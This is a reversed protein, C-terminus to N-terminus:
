RNESSSQSSKVEAQIRERSVGEGEGEIWSDSDWVDDCFMRVDEVDEELEAVNLFGGFFTFSSFPLCFSPFLSSLTRITSIL